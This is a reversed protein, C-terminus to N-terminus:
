GYRSRSAHLAPWLADAPQRSFLSVRQGRVRGWALLLSWAGNIEALRACIIHGLASTGNASRRTLSRHLSIVGLGATSGRARVALVGFMGQLWTKLIEAARDRSGVRDECWSRKAKGTFLVKPATPVAPESEARVPVFVHATNGIADRIREARLAEFREYMKRDILPVLTTLVYARRTHPNNINATFLEVYAPGGTQEV